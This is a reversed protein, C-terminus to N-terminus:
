FGSDNGGAEICRKLREPMSNVQKNIFEATVRENWGTIALRWAESKTWHPMERVTQKMPQWCNKIPALDASNPGNKLTTLYHEEKWQKVRNNAKGYGHGSDGDEELVFQHGAELWPKVISELIQDVYGDLTM